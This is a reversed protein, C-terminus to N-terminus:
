DQKCFLLRTHVSIHKSRTAPPALDVWPEQHPYRLLGNELSRTLKQRYIGVFHSWSRVLPELVAGPIGGRLTERPSTAYLVAPTYASRGAQDGMEKLLQRAISALVRPSPTDRKDPNRYAMPPAALIVGELLRGAPAGRQCSCAGVRLVM